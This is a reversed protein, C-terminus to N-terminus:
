FHIIGSLLLLLFIFGLVMLITGAIQSYLLLRYLRVREQVEVDYNPKRPFKSRM